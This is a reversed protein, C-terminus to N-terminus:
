IRSSRISEIWSADQSSWRSSPTITDFSPAHLALRSPAAFPNDASLSAPSEAKENVTRTGNALRDQFWFATATSVSVAFSMLLLLAPLRRM